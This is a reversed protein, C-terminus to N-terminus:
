AFEGATIREELDALAEGMYVAVRQLRPIEESAGVVAVHLKGAYRLCDITLAGNRLLPFMPYLAELRADGLWRPTEPGYVSSIVLNFMPFAGAALRTAQGALYLSTALLTYAPALEAPLEQLHARSARLSARISALRQRPDAHQTGLNVLGIFSARQQGPLAAVLSQTEPLANHEKFFRRLATACLYLVIEGETAGCAQAAAALRARDYQQTAVRRQPGTRVHLALYPATYPAQLNGDRVLAAKALRGFATGLTRINALGGAGRLAALPSEGAARRWGSLATSWPARPAQQAATALTDALLHVVTTADTLAPHVKFYLAFRNGYLGSLLHCEWPPHARDLPRSHLREVVIGLEREGGPAPLAEHHFHRDIDFDGAVQWHRRRGNRREPRLQWPEAVVTAERLQRRLSDLYGPGAGAPLAFV